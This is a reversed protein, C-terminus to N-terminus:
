ALDLSEGKTEAVPATFSPGSAFDSPWLEQAMRFSEPMLTYGVHGQPFCAYRAGGWLRALEEIEGPPAIRDYEGALM